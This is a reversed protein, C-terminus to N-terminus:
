GDRTSRIAEKCAAPLTCRAIGPILGAALQVGQVFSTSHLDGLPMDHLLQSRKETITQILQRHIPSRVLIASNPAQQRVVRATSLGRTLLRVGPFAVRASTFAACRAGSLSRAIVRLQSTLAWLLQKGQQNAM